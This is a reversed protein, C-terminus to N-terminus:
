SESHVLDGKSALLRILNRLLLPRKTILCHRMLEKGPLEVCLWRSHLQIKVAPIPFLPM